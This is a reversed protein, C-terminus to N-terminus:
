KRKKNNSGQGPRPPQKVWPKAPAGPTNAQPARGSRERATKQAALAREQLSLKSGKPTTGPTKADSRSSGNRADGKNLESGKPRPAEVVTTEVAPAAEEPPHMRLLLAQQGVAFLNSTLWYLVIGAQMTFTILTFFIPLFKMITQMQQAQASDPMTQRKSTQHQQYYGSLGVAAVLLYYPLAKSVGHQSSASQALDIGFSRMRGGSRVLSEYLESTKSLYHPRSVRVLLWPFSKSATLGRLVRFLVLFIPAQILLPLCGSAPNVKNAQYFKMMEENLKQRDGRHQAQLKKVEPQLRAMAQMSRVQKVTLPFVALRVLITLGIIAVGYSNTMQFFISIVQAILSFIFGLM